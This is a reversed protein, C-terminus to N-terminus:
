GHPIGDQIYLNDYADKKNEWNRVDKLIWNKMYKLCIQKLM